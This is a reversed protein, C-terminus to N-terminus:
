YLARWERRNGMKDLFRMLDDPTVSISARNDNPHFSLRDAQRLNDDLLLTVERATDNILAFPSVSGPRVGLLRMLRQESAFSLRGEGLEEWLRRIDVSHRCDAVVLYHKDGKHNRLFLNKCHRGEFNACYRLAEEVTRAVPHEIYGYRIGMEDLLAYLEPQGVM